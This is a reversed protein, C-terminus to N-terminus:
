FLIFYLIIIAALAVGSLILVTLVLENREKATKKKKLIQGEKMGMRQMASKVAMRRYVRLFIIFLLALILLSIGIYVLIKVPIIWFYWFMTLSKMGEGGQDAPTGYSLSLVAQYRGFGIGDQWTNTFLRTSAPLINGGTENGTLSAVKKNFMNTIDIEGAPKVHVNGLNQIKTSFNVKFPTNYFGKDSKFERIDAREDATGAIQLLILSTVQQAVGIAAGKDAEGPKTKPAQTGFVIAGYYGGPGTNDPVDITFPVSQSQGPALTIGDGSINVWSSIYNGAESGPDILQARGSEDGAAAKFDKLAAYFTIEKDSKNTLTVQKSLIDGPKVLEEMISPTIAITVENSAAQTSFFPVFLCSLIFCLLVASNKKM